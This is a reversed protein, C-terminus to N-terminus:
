NQEFAQDSIDAAAPEDATVLLYSVGPVELAANMRRARMGAAFSNCARSWLEGIAFETHYTGDPLGDLAVHGGPGLFVALAVAGAADRVKVVVPQVARNEMELSGTGYGRRELLEGDYPTPGANYGCYARRAAEADGPTLHDASILGNGYDNVLVELMGSQRILRIAQVESFPPLQAIPTLISHEVDLRWLMAPTGVPTVYFNPIGALRVPKPGYLVAEHASQSLPAVTAANPRIEERATRAPALLHAAAQYVCLCLFAALGIWLLVSIDSFRRQRISSTAAWGPDPSYAARRVVIVEPKIKERAAEKAQRDYAARRERNSLVDYAQKVAVFAGTDGTKPVDPHLLRAKGRFAAVIEMQTAAPKLGLRGYYDEPDLSTRPPVM